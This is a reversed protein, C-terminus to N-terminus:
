LSIEGPILTSVIPTILAHAHKLHAWGRGGRPAAFALWFAHTGVTGPPQLVDDGLDALLESWVGDDEALAFPQRAADASEERLPAYLDVGPGASGGDVEVVVIVVIVVRGVRLAPIGGTGCGM